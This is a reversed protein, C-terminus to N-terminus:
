LERIGIPKGMFPNSLDMRHETEVKALGRNQGTFDDKVIEVKLADVGCDELFLRLQTETAADPIRLLYRM